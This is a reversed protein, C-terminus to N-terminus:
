LLWLLLVRIIEPAAVNNSGIHWTTIRDPPNPDNWDYVTIIMTEKTIRKGDNRTVVVEFIWEFNTKRERGAFPTGFVRVLDAHSVGKIADVFSTGDAADEESLRKMELNFM